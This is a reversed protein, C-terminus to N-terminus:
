HQFIRYECNKFSLNLMENVSLHQFYRTFVRLAEEHTVVLVTTDDPPTLEDLFQLVRREFQRVSEGGPPVINYRDKGAMKFYENVPLGEFGSQIDNLRANAFLPLSHYQNIIEATQKTRPLESTVVKTFPINALIVAASQAQMIGETTLYVDKSPDSNCLGLEIYNTHGHRM